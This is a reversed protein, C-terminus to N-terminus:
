ELGVPPAGDRVLRFGLNLFKYQANYANRNSCRVNPWTNLYCGGRCVRTDVTTDEPLTEPNVLNKRTYQDKFYRDECWEWVNGSMDYLGLSNPQKTCVPHTTSKGTNNRFWGVLSVDDSGSYRQAKGGSRAAYEWEEETPLRFTMGTRRNLRAIYDKADLWSVTEVPFQDDTHFYSPNTEIIAKWQAQTVESKGMWFGNVSVKHVPREDSTDFGQEPVKNRDSSVCGVPFLAAACELVSLLIKKGSGEAVPRKENSFDEDAPTGMAFEGGPVWVFTMGTVPEAWVGLPEVPKAKAAPGAAYAQLLLNGSFFSVGICVLIAVIRKVGWRKKKIIVSVSVQVLRCRRNGSVMTIGTSEVPLDDQSVCQM